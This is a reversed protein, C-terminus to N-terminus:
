SYERVINALERAGEEDKGEKYFDIWKGPRSAEAVPAVPTAPEVPKPALSQNLLAKVEDLEQRLAANDATSPTSQPEVPTVPAAQAPKEGTPPVETSAVTTETNAYYQNYIDARKVTQETPATEVPAAPTVPTEVTVPEIQQTQPAQETAQVPTEITPNEM